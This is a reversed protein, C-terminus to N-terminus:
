TEKPRAKKAVAVIGDLKATIEPDIKERPV